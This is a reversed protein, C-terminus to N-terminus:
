DLFLGEILDRMAKGGGGHALTIHTDKVKPKRRRALEVREFFPSPIFDKTM